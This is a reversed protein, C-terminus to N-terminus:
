NSRGVFDMRIVTLANGTIPHVAGAELTQIFIDVDTHMGAYPVPTTDQGLDAFPFKSLDPAPISAKVLNNDSDTMTFTVASERNAYADTARDKSLVDNVGINQTNLVGLSLAAVYLALDGQVNKASDFTTGDTVDAVAVSFYGMESSNDKLGLTVKTTM